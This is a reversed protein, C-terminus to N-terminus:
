APVAIRPTVQVWQMSTASRPMTRTFDASQFIVDNQLAESFRQRLEDITLQSNSYEALSLEIDSVLDFTAEDADVHMNWTNRVLWNEFDALSTSRKLYSIIERRVEAQSIM